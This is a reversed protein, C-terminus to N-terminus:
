SFLPSFFLGLNRSATKKGRALPGPIWNKPLAPPPASVREATLGGGWWKKFTILPPAPSKVHPATAPSPPRCASEKKEGCPARAGKWEAPALTQNGPKPFKATQRIPDPPRPPPWLPVGQGPPKERPQPPSLSPGDGPGLPAPPPPSPPPSLPPYPKNRNPPVGPRPTATEPPNSFFCRAGPKELPAPPPPPTKGYVKKRPPRFTNRSLSFGLHGLGRVWPARYPSRSPSPPGGWPPGRGFGWTNHRPPSRRAPSFVPNGWPGPTKKVNRLPPGPGPGV